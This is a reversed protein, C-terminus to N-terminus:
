TSRNTQQECCVRHAASRFSLTSRAFTDVERDDLVFLFLVPTPHTYYFGGHVKTAIPTPVATNDRRADCRYPVSNFHELMGSNPLEVGVVRPQNYAIFILYLVCPTTCLKTTYCCASQQHETYWDRESGMSRCGKAHHLTLLSVGQTRGSRVLPLDRAATHQCSSGQAAVPPISWRIQLAWSKGRM